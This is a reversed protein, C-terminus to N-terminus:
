RETRLTHGQGVCGIGVRQAHPSMIIARHPASNLWTWAVKEATGTSRAICEVYGSAHGWGGSNLWRSHTRAGDAISEDWILPSLGSKARQENLIALVQAEFETGEGEIVTKIKEVSRLPGERNVTTTTVSVGVSETKGQTVTKTVGALSQVAVTHSDGVPSEEDAGDKVIRLPAPKVSILREGPALGYPNASSSGVTRYVASTTGTPRSSLSCHGSACSRCTQANAVCGFGVLAIVVGCLIRTRM